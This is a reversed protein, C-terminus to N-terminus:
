REDGKNPQWNESLQYQRNGKRPLDIAMRLFFREKPTLPSGEKRKRFRRLGVLGALGALFLIFFLITKM